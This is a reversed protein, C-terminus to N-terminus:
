AALGDIDSLLCAEVTLLRVIIIPPCNSPCIHEGHPPQIPEPAEQRMQELYDAFQPRQSPQSLNLPM